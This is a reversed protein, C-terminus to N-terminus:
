KELQRFKQNILPMLVWHVWHDVLTTAKDRGQTDYTKFAFGPEFPARRQAQREVNM